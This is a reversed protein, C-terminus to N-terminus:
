LFDNNKPKHHPFSRAFRFDIEQKRAKNVVAEWEELEKRYAKWRICVDPNHCGERREDCEPFCPPKPKSM